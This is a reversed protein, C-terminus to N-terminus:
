WRTKGEYTILVGQDRMKSYKIVYSINKNKCVLCRVREREKFNTNPWVYLVNGCKCLLKLHGDKKLNNIEDQTLKTRKVIEFDVGYDIIHQKRRYETHNTRGLKYIGDSRRMIYIYGPHTGINIDYAIDQARQRKETLVTMKDPRTINKIEPAIIFAVRSRAAPNHVIFDIMNLAMAVQIIMLNSIICISFIDKTEIFFHYREIIGFTLFPLFGITYIIETVFIITNIHRDFRLIMNHNILASQNM